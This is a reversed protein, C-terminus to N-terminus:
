FGDIGLTANLSRLRQAVNSPIAVLDLSLQTFPRMGLDDV